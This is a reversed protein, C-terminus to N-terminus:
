RPVVKLTLKKGARMVGVDLTQGSRQQAMIVMYTNLNRVAKGGLEVILDGSKLGGKAAPGDDAVGGVLVGEANEEYNPMIGLKPGSRGPSGNFSSAVQVFEPRKSDGALDIIIREPM